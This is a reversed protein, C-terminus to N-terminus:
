CEAGNASVVPPLPAPSIQLRVGCQFCRRGEAVAGDETLGLEVETFNGKVQEVPLCPMKVRAQGAFDDATLGACTGIAREQTLVEDIV